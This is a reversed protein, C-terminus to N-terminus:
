GALAERSEVGLGAALVALALSGAAQYRGRVRLGVLVCGRQVLDRAAFAVFVVNVLKQMVGSVFIYFTNRTIARATGM